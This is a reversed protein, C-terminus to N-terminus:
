CTRQGAEALLHVADQSLAGQGGSYCEIIPGIIAAAQLLQREPVQGGDIPAPLHRSAMPM